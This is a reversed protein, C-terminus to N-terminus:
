GKETGVDGGRALDADRLPGCGGGRWQGGRKWGAEELAAEVGVSTPPAGQPCADSGVAGTESPNSASAPCAGEEGRSWDGSGGQRCELVGAEAAVPGKCLSHIHLPCANNKGRGM